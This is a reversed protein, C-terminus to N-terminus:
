RNSECWSSALLGFCVVDHYKYGDFHQQQLIGERQFGLSLHFRISRENFVLAQGCLKHMKIEGFAYRLGAQGLLRGTGKPADPAVYFGWEAIGGSSIQNINIFGLPITNSEFVLLSRKPDKSAQAFWRAHEDPHIEHQTYMYRRVEPHNRWTLVQELDDVNMPRLNLKALISGSM